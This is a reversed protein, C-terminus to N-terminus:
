GMIHPDKPSAMEIISMAAKSLKVSSRPYEALNFLAVELALTANKKVYMNMKPAEALQTGQYSKRKKEKRKEFVQNFLISVILRLTYTGSIRGSCARALPVATPIEEM